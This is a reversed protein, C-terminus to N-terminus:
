AQPAVGRSPRSAPKCAAGTVPQGAQAFNKALEGRIKDLKSKSAAIAETNRTVFKELSKIRKKDRPHTNYPFTLREKIRQLRSKVAAEKRLISLLGEADGNIIVGMEDAEIEDHRSLWRLGLKVLPLVPMTTITAIMEIWADPRADGSAEYSVAHALEHAVAGAIEKSNYERLMDQHILVINQSALRTAFLNVNDDRTILLLPTGNLGANKALARVDNILTAHGTKEFERTMRAELQPDGHDPDVLLGAFGNKNKWAELLEKDFGM